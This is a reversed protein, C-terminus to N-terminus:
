LRFDEMGHLMIYECTRPIPTHVNKPAMKIQRDSNDEVLFEQFTHGVRFGLDRFWIEELFM